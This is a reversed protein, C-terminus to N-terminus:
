SLSNMSLRGIRTVCVTPSGIVRIAPLRNAPVGSGITPSILAGQHPIGKGNQDERGEHDAAPWLFASRRMGAQQQGGPIDRTNGARHAFRRAEHARQVPCPCADVTIESGRGIDGRGGIGAAAVRMLLVLAVGNGYALGADDILQGTSRAVGFMGPRQQPGVGFHIRLQAFM